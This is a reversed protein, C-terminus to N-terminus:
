FNSTYVEIVFPTSVDTYFLFIMLLLAYVGDAGICLSQFQVFYLLIFILIVLVVNSDIM